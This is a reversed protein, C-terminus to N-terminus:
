FGVHSGCLRQMLQDFDRRRQALHLQVGHLASKASQAKDTQDKLNRRQEIWHICQVSMLPDPLDDLLKCLAVFVSMNDGRKLIDGYDGLNTPEMSKLLPLARQPHEPDDFWYPVVGVPTNSHFVSCVQRSRGISIEAFHWNKFEAPSSWEENINMSSANHDVEQAAM